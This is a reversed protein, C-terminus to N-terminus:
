QKYPFRVTGNKVEIMETLVPKEKNYQGKTDASYIKLIINGKPLDEIRFSADVNCLCNAANSSPYEVVTLTDENYSFDINVKEFDCPYELSKFFCDATNGSIIMEFTCEEFDLSSRTNLCGTHNLDSLYPKSVLEETGSCSSLTILMLTALYISNRSKM